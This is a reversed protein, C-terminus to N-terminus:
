LSYCLSSLAALKLVLGLKLVLCMNLPLCFDIIEAQCFNYSFAWPAKIASIPKKIKKM